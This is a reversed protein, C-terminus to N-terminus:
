IHPSISLGPTDASKQRAQALMEKSLDVGTVQYGRHAMPIAHGGTGCGLDLISVIPSQAYHTFIKELFDCEIDYDKEQYLSDYFQAYDGFVSM